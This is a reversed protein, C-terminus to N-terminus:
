LALALALAAVLLAAGGATRAAAADVVATDRWDHCVVSAPIDEDYLPFTGADIAALQSDVDATRGSIFALFGSQTAYANPDEGNAGGPGFFDGADGSLQIEKDAMWTFPDDRTARADFVAEVQAKITPVADKLVQNFARVHELYAAFYVPNAFLPGVLPHDRVARCTPRAISWSLTQEGQMCSVDCLQSGFISGMNNHDYQFYRWNSEPRGDNALFFNNILGLPSDRGVTVSYTALNKLWDDVDVDDELPGRKGRTTEIFHDRLWDHMEGNWDAKKGLYLDIRKEELLMTPCSDNHYVYSFVLGAQQRAMDEAFPIMCATLAVFGEPMLGGNYGRPRLKKMPDRHDGRDHPLLTTEDFLGLNVATEAYELIEEEFGGGETGCDISFTKFKYLAYRGPDYDPFGRAYVFEQDPAEMLSYFGVYDGNIYFQVHRTRLYPLGFRALLRHMGWERVTSLDGFHHRLYFRELGFFTQSANESNVKVLFPFQSLGLCHALALTSQGRPRIAGSTIREVGRSTTAEMSSFPAYMEFDPRAQMYTWDGPAMTADLRIIPDSGVITEGGADMGFFWEGADNQAAIRDARGVVASFVNASGPTATATSAFAGSPTRAYTIGVDADGAMAATDLAIGAADALSIDDFAGVGFFSGGVCVVYYAGAALTRAAYVYTGASEPGSDDYLAYGTIDVPSAGDNVIEVWDSGGCQGVSGKGAVESILVSGRCGGVAALVLGVERRM